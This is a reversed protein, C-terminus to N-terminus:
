GPKPPLPLWHTPQQDTILEESWIWIVEDDLGRTICAVDWRSRSASFALVLDSEEARPHIEPLRESVPIQHPWQSPSPIKLELIHVGGEGDKASM